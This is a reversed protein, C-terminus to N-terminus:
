RNFYAFYPQPEVRWEGDIKRVVFPIEVVGFLGLLLKVDPATSGEVVRDRM